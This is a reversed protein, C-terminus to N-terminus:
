ECVISCVLPEVIEGETLLVLSVHVLKGEAKKLGSLLLSRLTMATAKLLTYCVSILLQAAKCLPKLKLTPSGYADSDIGLGCFAENVSTFFGKFIDQLSETLYSSHKLYM